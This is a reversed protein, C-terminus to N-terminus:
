AGAIVGLASERVVVAQSRITEAAIAPRATRQHIPTGALRALTPDASMPSFLAALATAAERRPSSLMAVTVVTAVLRSPERQLTNVLWKYQYSFRNSADM